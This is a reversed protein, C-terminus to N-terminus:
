ESTDWYNQGPNYVEFNILINLFHKKVSREEGTIYPAGPPAM